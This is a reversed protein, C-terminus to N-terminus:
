YGIKPLYKAWVKMEVVIMGLLVATAGIIFAQLVSGGSLRCTVFGFFLLVFLLINETFYYATDQTIIGFAALAFLTIPVLISGMVWSRQCFIKWRDRWPTIRHYKMDENITYAYTDALAVALLSFFVTVIINLNSPLTYYSLSGLVAMLVITGYLLKASILTLFTIMKPNPNLLM